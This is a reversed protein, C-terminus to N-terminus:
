FLGDLAACFIDNLYPASLVNVGRKDADVSAARAIQERNNDNYENDAARKVANRIIRKESSLKMKNEQVLYKM